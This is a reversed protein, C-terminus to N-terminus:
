KSEASRRRLPDVPEHRDVIGKDILRAAKWAVVTIIEGTQRRRGAAFFPKRVIVTTHKESPQYM